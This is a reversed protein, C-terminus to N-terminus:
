PRAGLVEALKVRHVRGYDRVFYLESGDPSYSPFNEVASTNVAGGLPRPTSWETGTRFSVYLDAPHRRRLEHNMAAATIVVFSGDPSLAGEFLQLDTRTRRLRDIVDWQAPTDFERGNWRTVWQGNTTAGSPGQRNFYVADGPGFYPQPHYSGFVSAKSMFVPTGWSDGSREAYWLYANPHSADTDGPAPRYSAFVMRRGDSSISPYLDSYNGGLNVREPESWGTDVRRTRFITFDESAAAGTKKFYYFTRGDPDFSGRYVNGVSVPLPAFVAAHGKPPSQWIVHGIMWRGDHKGLLIYDSGWYADIRVAATQDQVDLLQIIKPADPPTKTRGEKVSRAFNAFHSWPMQMGRYSTSDRPRYYGYKYVEPRVSRLHLTSDGLYFGDIYDNAAARIAASDAATQAHVAVPATLLLLALSSRLRM